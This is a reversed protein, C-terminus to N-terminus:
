DGKNLQKLYRIITIIGHLKGLEYDDLKTLQLEDPFMTDLHEIVESLNKPVDDKITTM